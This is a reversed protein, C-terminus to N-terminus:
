VREKERVDFELKWKGPGDREVCWLELTGVETVATRLRVPILSGERNEAELTASVTTTEEIGEDGPEWPDVCAGVEDGRRTASSLFRFEAPEGVVLGFEQGPLDAQTGEEMGLPAVCVAKVPPALGPVAPRSVEVGIYYSKSTGGRIRIGRGHRVRGYHAAGRAVARDLDVNVLERVAPASEAELWLNVIDRVRSRLRTAKMVGGNFLIVSPHIFTEGPLARGGKRDRVHVGLFSALHRSIAADSEYPLGLETLGTRRQRVAHDGPDCVPFFGELLAAQVDGRQLETKISGGILSIGRGPIM